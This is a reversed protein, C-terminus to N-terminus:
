KVQQMLGIGTFTKTVSAIPYLSSDPDVKGNHTYGFANKYIVSNNHVISIATSYGQNEKIKFHEEVILKIKEYDIKNAILFSNIILFVLIILKM